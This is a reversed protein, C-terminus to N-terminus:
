FLLPELYEFAFVGAFLIAAAWLSIRAARNEHPSMCEEGAACARRGRWYMCYYGYGLMAMTAVILFPKYPALAVLSGVWTGGIGVSMLAFPLLCCSAIGLAGLLGGAAVLKAGRYGKIM